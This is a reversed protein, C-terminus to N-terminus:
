GQTKRRTKAPANKRAKVAAERAAKDKLSEMRKKLSEDTIYTKGGILASALEGKAIYRFITSRDKELAKAVEEVTWFEAFLETRLERIGKHCPCQDRDEDATAM